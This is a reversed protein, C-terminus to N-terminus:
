FLAGCHLTPYVRRTETEEAKPSKDASCVSDRRRRTYSANSFFFKPCLLHLGLRCVLQQSSRFKRVTQILNRCFFLFLLYFKLSIRLLNRFVSFSLCIFQLCCLMPVVTAQERMLLMRTGVPSFLTSRM